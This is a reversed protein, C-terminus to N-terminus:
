SPSRSRGGPDGAAMSNAAAARVGRLFEQLQSVDVPKGLFLTTRDQESANLTERLVDADHYASVIAAPIARNEPHSTMGRLRAWPLAEGSSPAAGGKKGRLWRLLHCGSWIVAQEEVGDGAIMQDLILADFRQGELLKAAAVVDRAWTINWGDKQLVFREFVFREPDDDDVWLLDRPMTEASMSAEM